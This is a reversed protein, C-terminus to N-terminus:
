RQAVQGNVCKLTKRWEWPRVFGGVTVAAGGPASWVGIGKANAEVEARYVDDSTHPGGYVFAMGNRVLEVNMSTANAQDVVHGVVRSYQDIDQVALYLDSAQAAWESAFETARRGLETCSEHADVDGLRVRFGGGGETPVAVVTDGDVVREIRIPYLEALDEADGHCARLMSLDKSIHLRVLAAGGGPGRHLVRLDWGDVMVDAYTTEGEEPCGLATSGWQDEKAQMLILVDRDWLSYQTAVVALVDEIVQKLPTTSEAAAPTAPAAEPSM